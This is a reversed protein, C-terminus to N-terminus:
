GLVAAGGGMAPWGPGHPGCGARRPRAQGPQKTAATAIVPGSSVGCGACASSVNGNALGDPPYGNPASKRPRSTSDRTSSPPQSSSSIATLAVAIPIAAPAAM